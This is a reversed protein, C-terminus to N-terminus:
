TGNEPKEKNGAQIDDLVDAIKEGQKIEHAPADAPATAARMIHKKPIVLWTGTNKDASVSWNELDADIGRVMPIQELERFILNVDALTYDPKTTKILSGSLYVFRGMCSISILELDARHSTLINRVHRNMEYRAPADDYTRDM